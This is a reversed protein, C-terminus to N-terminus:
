RVPLNLELPPGPESFILETVQGRPQFEIDLGVGTQLPERLRARGMLRGSLEGGRPDPTKRQFTAPRNV